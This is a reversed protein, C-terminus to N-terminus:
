SGERGRKDEGNGDGDSGSGPYDLVIPDPLTSVPDLPAPDLPMAIAQGDKVVSWGLAELTRLAAERESPLCIGREGGTRLILGEAALSRISRRVASRTLLCGNVIEGQSPSYGWEGIYDRIFRLVILRTSGMEPSIRHPTQDNM